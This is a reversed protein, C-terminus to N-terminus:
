IVDKITEFLAQLAQAVRQGRDSLKYLPPEKPRREKEILGLVLLTDVPINRLGLQVLEQSTCPREMLTTLFAITNGKLLFKIVAESRADM